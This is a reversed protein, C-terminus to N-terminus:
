WLLQQDFWWRVDGDFVCVDVGVGADLEGGFLFGEDAAGEVEEGTTRREFLEGEPGVVAHEFVREVMALPRFCYSACQALLGGDGVEGEGWSGAAPTALWAWYLRWVVKASM